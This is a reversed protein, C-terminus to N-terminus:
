ATQPARRRTLRNSLLTEAGLLVLAALLLWWWAAQRQEREGRTLPPAAPAPANSGPDPSVARVLEAPEIRSPDAETPDVNVAIALTRDARGSAPRAEYFGSETLALAGGTSARGVRASDSRRARPLSEIRVQRRSPTVVVWGATDAAAVEGALRALDVTEGAVHWARSEAYGAARMAMQHVLPVYVPQLPLDTWYSDLTTAWMLVRGLGVQREVLAPAGDDFRAIVAADPTPELERYRLTRPASLDGSRPVSFPLFVPHARELTALRAGGADRDVIRGVDAALLARAPRWAGSASAEGTAVLLGGGGRVFGELLRAAAGTPPADDMIVLQHEALQKASIESARTVDVRFPPQDGVALARQLYLGGDGRGGEREVLLVRVVQGRSVAFHFADDAPLADGAAARVTARMWGEPVPIPDFVAQAAANPAVSVARSQTVRGGIELSVPITRAPAARGPLAGAGAGGASVIRATARVRERGDVVERRLEVGTVAVDAASDARGSVDIPTLTAGSPLRAEADAAALSSDRWGSRQFDTILIAERKPMPSQALIRSALALAPAYRTVGAGVKLTDVGRRLAARDETAETVGAPAADFAVVTARDGPRLGDIAARAMAQAREWRGGASMSYSRDVLVVVERGAAGPTAASRARDLLPRAFAAALLLIAACRMAFLLLDRLSRRRTARHPVRRVFMLSPFPVPKKRERQVLHVIIPVAILALGALFWPALFSM